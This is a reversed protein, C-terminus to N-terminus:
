EPKKGPPKYAWMILALWRRYTPNKVYQANHRKIFANRKEGWTLTKSAPYLKMKKSTGIRKYVGMFGSRSRAVKSVGLRKAEKIYKSANSYSMWLYTKSKKKTPTITKSKKRKICNNVRKGTRSSIKTRPSGIKYNPWCQKNKSKSLKCYRITGDPNKVPRKLLDTKCKKKSM